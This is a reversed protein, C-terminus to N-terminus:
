TLYQSLYNYDPHSSDLETWKEFWGDLGWGYITHEKTIGDTCMVLGDVDRGLNALDNVVIYQVGNEPFKIWKGKKRSYSLCYNLGKYSKEPSEKIHLKM